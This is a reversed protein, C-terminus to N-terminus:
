SWNVFLLAMLIIMGVIGYICYFMLKNFDTWLTKAEEVQKDDPKAAVNSGM